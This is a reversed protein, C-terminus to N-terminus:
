SPTEEIPEDPTQYRAMIFKLLTLFISAVPVALLAGILGYTYEGALLAFIVIVPHIHASTGIIKPNLINAEIFHILLIWGLIALAPTLGGTLAIAVAPISSIIVGFVPILSLVTAFMTLVLAFKIKFLFLGIGTLAGNILCIMLQGRVVGSLGRDMKTLLDDYTKRANTPVLSRFYGMIRPLDISLFAAIMFTLILGVFASLLGIALGQGFAVIRAVESGSVAVAGELEQNLSRELDFFFPEPAPESQELRTRLVFSRETEPNPLLEVEELMVLWEGTVPDPVLRFAANPGTQQEMGAIRLDVNGQQYFEREEPTMAGVLLAMTQARDLAKYVESRVTQIQPDTLRTPFFRRLLEQLDRNLDPIYQTRLREFFKPTEEALSAFENVLPPLFVVSFSTVTGFFTIYVLVVCIWRPLHWRRIRIRNLRKVVPEMLYVIILALIFPLLVHRFLALLLVLTALLLVPALFRRARQWTSRVPSTM